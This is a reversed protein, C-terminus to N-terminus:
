EGMNVIVDTTNAIANKPKNGTYECYLLSPLLPQLISHLTCCENEHKPEEVCFARTVINGM